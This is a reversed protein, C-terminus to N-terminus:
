QMYVQTWTVVYSDDVEAKVVYGTAFSEWAGVGEGGLIYIDGSLPSEPPEILSMSIVSTLSRFKNEYRTDHNHSDRAYDADHNHDIRALTIWDTGTYYSYSSDITNHFGDGNTYNSPISDLEGHYVPVKGARLTISAPEMLLYNDDYPYGIRIYQATPDVNISVGKYNLDSDCIYVGVYAGPANTDDNVSGECIVAGYANTGMTIQKYGTTRVLSKITTSGGEMYEHQDAIVEVNCNEDDSNVTFSSNSTGNIKAYEVDYEGTNFTAKNNMPSKFLAM